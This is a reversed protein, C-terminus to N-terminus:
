VQLTTARGPLYLPAGELLPALAAMVKWILSPTTLALSHTPRTPAAMAAMVKWILFASRLQGM